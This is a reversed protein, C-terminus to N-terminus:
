PANPGPFEPVQDPHEEDRLMERPNLKAPKGPKRPPIKMNRIGDATRPAYYRHCAVCTSILKNFNARYSATSKVMVGLQDDMTRLFARFSAPYTKSPLKRSLRLLMRSPAAMSVRGVARRRLEEAVKIMRTMDRKVPQRGPTRRPRHRPLPSVEPSQVVKSRAVTKKKHSCGQLAPLTLLALALFLLRRAAALPKCSADM